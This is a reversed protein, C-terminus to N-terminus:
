ICVLHIVVASRKESVLIHHSTVHVTRCHCGYVCTAPQAPDGLPNTLGMPISRQCLHVALHLVTGELQLGHRGASNHPLSPFPTLNYPALTARAHVCSAPRFSTPPPPSHHPRDVTNGSLAMGPYIPTRSLSIDLTIYELHYLM